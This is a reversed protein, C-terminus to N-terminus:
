AYISKLQWADLSLIAADHGAAEMSFGLSDDLTPYVRLALWLEDNVFV